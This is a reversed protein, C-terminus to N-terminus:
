AVKGMLPTPVQLAIGSNSNLFCASKLPPAVLARLSHIRAFRLGGTWLGVVSVAGCLCVHCHRFGCRAADAARERREISLGDSAGLPRKLDQSKNVSPMKRDTVQIVLGLPKLVLRGIRAAQRRVTRLRFIITRQLLFTTLRNCREAIQPPLFFVRASDFKAM